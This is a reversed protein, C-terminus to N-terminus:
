DLQSPGTERRCRATFRRRGGGAPSGLQTWCGLETRVSRIRKARSTDRSDYTAAGDCSSQAGPSDHEIM